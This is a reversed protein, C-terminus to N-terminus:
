HAVPGQAIERAALRRDHLVGSRAGVEGVAVAQKAEPREFFGGGRQLGDVAIVLPMAAGGALDRRRVEIGPLGHGLDQVFRQLCASRDSIGNADAHALRARTLPGSSLYMISRLLVRASSRASSPAVSEDQKSGHSMVWARTLVLSACTRRLPRPRVSRKGIRLSARDSRNAATGRSFRARSRSIGM